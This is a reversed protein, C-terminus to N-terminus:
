FLKEKDTELAKSIKEKMKETFEETKFLIGLYQKSIETLRALGSITIGKKFMLTRLKSPAAM